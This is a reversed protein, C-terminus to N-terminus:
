PAAQDRAIAFADGELPLVVPDFSPGAVLDHGQARILENATEEDMHQGMAKMTDTMVTQEGVGSPGFVQHLHTIQETDNGLLWFYLIGGVVILRLYKGMWARTAASAHDYNFGEFAALM